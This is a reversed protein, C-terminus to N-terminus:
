LQFVGACRLQVPSIYNARFRKVAKMVNPDRRLEQDDLDVPMPIHFRAMLLDLLEQPESFSRYTM